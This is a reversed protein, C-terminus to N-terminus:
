VCKIIVDSGNLLNRLFSFNRILYIEKVCEEYIYCIKCLNNKM